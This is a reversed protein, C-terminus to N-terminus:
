CGRIRSRRYGAALADKEERFPRRNVEALDGAAACDRSYFVQDVRSGFFAVGNPLSVQRRASTDASTQCEPVGSARYGASRAATETPFHQRNVDALDSAAACDTLFYVRDARSGVLARAAAAPTPREAERKQAPVAAIPGPAQPKADAAGSLASSRPGPGGARALVATPTRQSERTEPRLALGQSRKTAIENATQELRVYREVTTPHSSAFRISGPNAMAMKRWLNPARELSKNASALLYMGVYDAEREFDQSYTMAALRGFQGTFEGGTNVGQTAAFIDLIAGFIAGAAANQSQAQVHRMANHAIEHALVTTLEEDTMMLMMGTNVYVARGDAFANVTQDPVVNVDYDCLTDAVLIVDRRVGEHVYGLQARGSGSALTRSIQEGFTKTLNAASTLEQPGLSVIRDGPAIGAADAPSEPSVATVTLSDSIGAAAAAMRWEARYDSRSAVRLGVKPATSPCLNRADRLLPYAIGYLRRDQELNGRVVFLRQNAEERKIQEPSISRQLTTPAVCGFQSAAGLVCVVCILVRM